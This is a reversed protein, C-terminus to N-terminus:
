TAPHAHVMGAYRRRSRVDTRARTEHTSSPRSLFSCRHRTCRGAHVMRQLDLFASPIGAAEGRTRRVATRDTEVFVRERSKGRTRVHSTGIIERRALLGM